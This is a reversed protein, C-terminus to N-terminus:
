VEEEIDLGARLLAKNQNKLSKKLIDRIEILPSLETNRLQLLTDLSILLDKAYEILEDKAMDINRVTMDDEDRLDNYRKFWYAISQRIEESM